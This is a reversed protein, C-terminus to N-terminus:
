IPNLDLIFKRPVPKPEPHAPAPAAKAPDALPAVAASQSPEPTVPLVATNVVSPDDRLKLYLTGNPRPVNLTTDGFGEPVTVANALQALHKGIPEDSAISDLFLNQFKLLGLTAKSVSNDTRLVAKNTIQTALIDFQQERSPSGPDAPWNDELSRLAM